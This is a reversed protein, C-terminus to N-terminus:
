PIYFGRQKDDVRERDAPPKVANSMGSNRELLETTEKMEKLMKQMEENNPDALKEFRTLKERMEQKM